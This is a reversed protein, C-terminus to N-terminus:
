QEKLGVLNWHVPCAPVRDRCRAESRDDEDTEGGGRGGGLAAPSRLDDGAEVARDGRPLQGTM